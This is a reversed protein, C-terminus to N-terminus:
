RSGESGLLDALMDDTVRGGGSRVLDAVTAVLEATRSISDAATARRDEAFSMESINKAHRRIHSLEEDLNVLPTFRDPEPEGNPFLNAMVQEHSAQDLTHRADDNKVIEKAVEPQAVIPTVVEAQDRPKLDGLSQAATEKANERTYERTRQKGIHQQFNRTTPKSGPGKMGDFKAAFSAILKDRDDAKYCMRYCTWPVSTPRPDLKPFATSVQRYKALSEYEVGIDEAYAKLGGGRGDNDESSGAEGVVEVALDGLEWNSRSQALVIAQGEAVLEEYPRGSHTRYDM